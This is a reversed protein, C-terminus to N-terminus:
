QTRLSHFGHVLHRGAGRRTGKSGPYPSYIIQGDINITLLDHVPINLQGVHKDHGGRILIKTGNLDDLYEQRKETVRFTFDGLIYVTDKPGVKKNWNDILAADMQEVSIFPRHCYTLIRSHGLHLDATFFTM